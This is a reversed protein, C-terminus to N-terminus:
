PRRPLLRIPLMTGIRNAVQHGAPAKLTRLYLENKGALKVNALEVQILCGLAFTVRSRTASANSIM